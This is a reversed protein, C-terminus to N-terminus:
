RILLAFNGKSVPTEPAGDADEDYELLLTKLMDEADQRFRVSLTDFQDEPRQMQNQYIRSAVAFTLVDKLADQRYIKAWQFGNAKLKAKLLSTEVATANNIELPTAYKKIAPHLVELDYPTVTLPKHQGTARQLQLRRIDIVDDGATKLKYVVAFWYDLTPQESTPAPDAIATITFACTPAGAVWTGTVSSASGSGTNAVQSRSPKSTYVYLTATHGPIGRVAADDVQPTYQLEFDQALPYM